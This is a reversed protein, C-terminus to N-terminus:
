AGVSGGSPSHHGPLTLVFTTGLGPASRVDVDGGHDRVFRHVVALGLGSGGPKTSFFPEFLHSFDTAAIGEGTDTVSIRLRTGGTTARVTLEGGDPMADLANLCLNWLVQRLRQPDVAWALAPAVDRTIKLGPPLERHELLVLVDDILESIDVTEAALPAPRAYELFSGIMQNLRASERAVIQTLRDRDDHAGVDGTLAEIAGTLSALPNRIEHAINAALRGLTALRDARRMQEEMERIESLDECVAVLGLNRGDGSRLVSFTMRVPVRRGDPRLLTAEQRASANPQIAITAEIAEIPMSGFLASWPQGVMETAPRGSVQEAARNLVTVTHHRDLVILGAGVSRLIVEKFAQLDRLDQRQTELEERTSRIREALGSAVIAVVLLTGTNVFMALIELTTGEGLPEWLHTVPVVTRVFVLGIYLASSLAAIVLSGTRSLLVCAATVLLVYLFALMSRAGGTSAVAATILSADLLCLYWAARRPRGASGFILRAGSSVAVISLVVLLIGTNVRPVLDPPLLPVVVALLGALVLRGWAFIRLIRDRDLREPLSEVVKVTHEKTVM